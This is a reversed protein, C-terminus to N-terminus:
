EMVMGGDVNLAQGLIESASDSALFIIADAINEPRQLRGMPVKEVWRKELEDRPVGTRETEWVYEREMMPTAVTGPCVANVRIDPCVEMALARTFGIVAAKSACYNTFLAQGRKGAQSAISIISGKDMVRLASRSCLFVGKANVDMVLDWEDESMEACLKMTVTGANNVLIDLGGFRDVTADIMSDVSDGVTVDCDLDLLRETSGAGIEAVAATANEGNLDAVVVNDGLQHFKRAIGLGMGQAGGTVVVTRPASM